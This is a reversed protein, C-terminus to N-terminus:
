DGNADKEEEHGRARAGLLRTLGWGGLASTGLTLLLTFLVKTGALRDIYIGSAIGILGPVVLLLLAQAALLIADLNSGVDLAHAADQSSLRGVSRRVLRFSAVQGAVAGAVMCLLTGWPASAFRADIARGLVLGLLVLGASLLGMSLGLETALGIARFWRKVVYEEAAVLDIVTETVTSVRALM